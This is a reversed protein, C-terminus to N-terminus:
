GNHWKVTMPLSPNTYKDFPLRWLSRDGVTEINEFGLKAYHDAVMGNKQTRIYEGRLESAGIQSCREILIGLMAREVQRSLVRCSMLWSDLRWAGGEGPVAIVVTILGNDGFRDTLRGWLAVTSDKQMLETVESESYRRTTLNFQNTKNILQVTRMLQASNVAGVTLTMDLGELYSAMDTAESKSKERSLNEQYQRSRGHDESTVGSSEFYGADAIVYPFYAPDEPMEPVAVEPLERRILDREAPNDDAFVLSDVGINLARAIQRINGAKDDWNAVICAFDTDRLLMESHNSFAHRVVADDNKSCVALIVGRESLKKAYQQFALFAEGSASGQGLVIGNLGDDGIVGGWLTNDLDLVLCKKARGLLATIKRAVIDGFLAAVQPHVEQKAHHWLAPDYWSRSGVRGAWGALDLVHYGEESAARALRANFADLMSFQSFPILRDYNGFEPPSLPPVTSVLIRAGTRDKPVKWTNRLAGVAKETLSDLEAWNQASGYALADQHGTLFLVADPRFEWLPSSEGEVEQRFQGYGGLYIEIDLGFRLGAIRIAPLLHDVTSSPLIALRFKQLPIEDADRKAALFARDIQNTQFYDSQFRSLQIISQLKRAPDAQSRVAQLAAKFDPQKPLWHLELLNMVALVLRM